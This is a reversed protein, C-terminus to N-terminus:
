KLKNLAEDFTKSISISDIKINIMIFRLSINILANKGTIVSLHKCTKSISLMYTKILHMKEASPRSATTLDLIMNKTDNEKVLAEMKTLLTKTDFSNFGEDRVYLVNGNKYHIFNNPNFPHTEM